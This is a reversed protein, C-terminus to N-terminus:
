FGASLTLAPGSGPRSRGAVRFRWDAEVRASASTGLRFRVSAVPGMDLREAGRQRAGWAGGGARIDFGAVSALPREARVLGDVFATAGRGGIYGAQAYAEGTFGLPLRAPPLESVVAIAPRLRIGQADRLV